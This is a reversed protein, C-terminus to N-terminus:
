LTELRTIVREHVLHVGRGTVLRRYHEYEHHREHAERSTFQEYLLFKAPDETRHAFYQLCEPEQRSYEQM